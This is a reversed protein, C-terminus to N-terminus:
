ESTASIGHAKGIEEALLRALIDATGGAAFPVMFKIMRSTQAQAAAGLLALLAITGVLRYLM